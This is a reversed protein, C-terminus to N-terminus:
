RMWDERSLGRGIDGCDGAASHVVRSMRVGLIVLLCETNVIALTEDFAYIRIGSASSQYSKPWLHFSDVSKPHSSFPSLPCTKALESLEVIITAIFPVLGGKTPPLSVLVFSLILTGGKLGRGKKRADRGQEGERM